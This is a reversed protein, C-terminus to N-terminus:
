QLRKAPGSGSRPPLCLARGGAKPRRETGEVRSGEALQWFVPSVGFRRTRRLRDGEAGRQPYTTAGFRMAFGLQPSPAPSGAGFTALGQCVTGSRSPGAGPM